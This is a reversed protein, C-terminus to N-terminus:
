PTAETALARAADIVRAKHPGEISVYLDRVRMKGLYGQGFRTLGLSGAPLEQGYLAFRYLMLPELAEQVTLDGNGAASGYSLEVTPVRRPKRGSDEGYGVAVTKLSVERLPQGALSDGGVLKGGLAARAQDLSVVAEDVVRNVVQEQGPPVLRPRAFSVDARDLTEATSVQARSVLQGGSLTEVQVPEYTAADVAVREVTPSGGGMAPLTFRLWEVARGDVTGSGDRTAEGSALADRYGTVFGALAPDLAPRPEPVHRPTTGNEGSPNCSVRAKTAEVPHAAIWACTYVRGAETWSGEPTELVEQTVTGGIRQVSRLLGREGDFWLETTRVLPSETGTRLDVVSSDSVEARQVVHIVEGAGIAALARDVLGGSGSWPSALALAVALGLIAAIAALRMTRRRPQRAAAPEVQTAAIADAIALLEPSDRLLEVVEADLRVPPVVASM